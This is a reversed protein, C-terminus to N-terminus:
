FKGQKPRPLSKSIEGSTSSSVNATEAQRQAPTQASLSSVQNTQSSERDATLVSFPNADRISTTPAVEGTDQSCLFREFSSTDGLMPDRLLDDLEPAFDFDDLLMGDLKELDWEQQPLQPGM